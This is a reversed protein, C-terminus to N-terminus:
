LGAATCGGPATRNGMHKRPHLASTRRAAVPWCDAPWHKVLAAARRAPIFTCNTVRFLQEDAARDGPTALRRTAPWPCGAAGGNVPHGPYGYAVGLLPANRLEQRTLKGAVQTAAVEVAARRGGRRRIHELWMAARQNETRAAYRM